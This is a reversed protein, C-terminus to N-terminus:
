NDILAEVDDYVRKAIYRNGKEYVHCTDWYIDHEGDFINTIDKIYPYEKIMERVKEYWKRIGDVYEKDKKGKEKGTITYDGVFLNPQLYGLFHAGYELCIAHMQRMTNVWWEEFSMDKHEMGTCVCKVRHHNGALENRLGYKVSTQLMNKQYKWVFLNDSLLKREYNVKINCVGSLSIVIDPKLYIGDRILKLLEQFSNFSIMGGCMIFVNQDKLNDYLYEPWNKMNGFKVYSTSNGLILIRHKATIEDGYTWFGEYRQKPEQRVYGLTVDYSYLPENIDVCYNELYSIKEKSVGADILLSVSHLIYPTYELVISNEAMVVEDIFTYNDLFDQLKICKDAKKKIIKNFGSDVEILIVSKGLSQIYKCLKKTYFLRWYIRKICDYVSSHKIKKWMAYHKTM